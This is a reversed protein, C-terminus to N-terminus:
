VEDKVRTLSNGSFFGVLGLNIISIKLLWLIELFVSCFQSSLDMYGKGARRFERGSIGKLVSSVMPQVLSATM